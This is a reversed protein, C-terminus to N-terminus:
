SATEDVIMKFKGSKGIPIKDVFQVDFDMVGKFYPVLSNKIDDVISSHNGKMQLRIIVKDPAM